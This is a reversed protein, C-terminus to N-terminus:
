CHNFATLFNKSGIPQKIFTARTLRTIFSYISQSPPVCYRQAPYTRWYPLIKV